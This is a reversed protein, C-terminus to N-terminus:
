RPLGTRPSGKVNPRPPRIPCNAIDHGPQRCYFCGNFKRLRERDEQTLPKPAASPSFHSPAKTRAMASSRVKMTDLEMPTPGSSRYTSSSFNNSPPYGASHSPFCLTDVREAMSCAASFDTPSRLEVEARVKPKLGRLFRDIREVDSLDPIKLSLTNFENVYRKVTTIQKLNALQDRAIRVQNVPTFQGKLANSFDAWTTISAPLTGPPLGQCQLQWWTAAPGTLYGATFLIKDKDSAQSLVAFYLNVQFLWTDM